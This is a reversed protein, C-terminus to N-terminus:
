PKMWEALNHALTLNGEALFKDQFIADDGFVAFKGKGYTGAVAVEFAQIIDRKSLKGDGDMDLWSKPSTRAVATGTKSENKLAWVGHATFSKIGATLPHTTLDRVMFDTERGDILNEQEHIVGKSALVDLRQLLPVAPPAIHLMVAIRGGKEVFGALLDAEAASIATFPGSLVVADIGSLSAASFEGESERIEFGSSRFVGALSSLHLDGKEGIFFREGHGRDFVIVPKEAAAAPLSVALALLPLFLM